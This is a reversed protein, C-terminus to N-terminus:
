SFYGARSQNMPDILFPLTCGLGYSDTHGQRLARGARCDLRASRVLHNDALEDGLIVAVLKHNVEVVIREV